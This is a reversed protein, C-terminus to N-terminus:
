KDIILRLRRYYRHFFNNIQNYKLRSCHDILRAIVETKQQDKEQSYGSYITGSWNVIVVLAGMCLTEEKAWMFSSHSNMLLQLSEPDPKSNREVIHNIFEKVRSSSKVLEVIKNLKNQGYEIIYQQAFEEILKEPGFELMLGYM